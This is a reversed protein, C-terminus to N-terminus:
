PGKTIIGYYFRWSGLVWVCVWVGFSDVDGLGLGRFGLVGSMYEASTETHPDSKCFGQLEVGGM